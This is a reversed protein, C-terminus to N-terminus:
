RLSHLYKALNWVGGGCFHLGYSTNYLHIADELTPYYAEYLGRIQNWKNDLPKWLGQSQVEYGLTSQEYHMHNQAARYKDIYTYFLNRFFDAHLAPSCLFLGGNLVHPTDITHNGLLKYYDTASTEWGREAQFQIRQEPTPQSYEDVMGIKGELDITHFPPANRTILIDADLVLIRNYHAFWPHFPIVWKMIDIEHPTHYEPEDFIYDSLVIHDYNYKQCYEEVSPRFIDSYTQLYSEGIAITVVACSLKASTDTEQM